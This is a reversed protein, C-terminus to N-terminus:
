GGATRVSQRRMLTPTFLFDGVPISPDKLRAMLRKVALEAMEKVPSRVTTIAPSVLESFVMDDIGALSIDDPVDIGHARFGAIM